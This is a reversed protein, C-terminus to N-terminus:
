VHARGIQLTEQMLCQAEENGKLEPRLVEDALIGVINGAAPKMSAPPSPLSPVPSPVNDIRAIGPTGGLVQM